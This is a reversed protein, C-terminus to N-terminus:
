PNEVFVPERLVSENGAADRARVEIFTWGEKSLQVTKTFAGDAEVKVVEGAISVQAGPESRGGVIFINGYPQIGEVDLQPPTTDAGEGRGSDDPAAVRFARMESWPGRAGDRAVAAVRWQFGGTGRVGLTATTRTRNAIDIVNETFLRNRSVQLAYHAAGPVPKWSLLLREVRGLAVQHDDAPALPEPRGPLPRPESLEQGSQVVQQLERVERRVGGAGSLEMGGRFAGFRGQRSGKEYTVFAESREEVRAAAGPTEVQSSRDHTSLDVWGYEMRIAREGRVGDAAPATSVVFMTDPRVTYLTGDTFHIEASGGGSTRVFDGQHLAMRSRAEEWDSAEGRRVEVLGQVYTFQAEGGSGPLTLADLVSRLLTTARRASERAAGFERREFESRAQEVSQFAADYEKRYDVARPEEQLRQLLGHASEILRAAEREHAQRQWSRYTFFAGTGAALVLLVLALGRLTEVTVSYWQQKRPRPGKDPPM